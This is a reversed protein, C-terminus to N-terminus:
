SSRKGTTLRFVSGKRDKKSQKRTTETKRINPIPLVDMSM